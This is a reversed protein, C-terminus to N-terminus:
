RRGPRIWGSGPILRLLECSLAISQRISILLAGLVGGDFRFAEGVLGPAFDAGNSLSGEYGDILDHAHGDGSWWAILGDSLPLCDSESASEAPLAQQPPILRVDDIYTTAVAGPNRIDILMRRFDANRLEAVDTPIYEGITQGDLLCRYIMTAPDVELRLQYWRDYDGPVSRYYIGEVPMNRAKAQKIEFVFFAGGSDARQDCRAEWNAGSSLTTEWTMYSEVYLGNHDSSLMKRIEMGGLEGGKVRDPSRVMLDCGIPDDHISNAIQLVGDGQVYGGDSFAACNDMREWRTANYSGDDVPDDFSDYLYPAVESVAPTPAEALASETSVVTMTVPPTASASVPAGPEAVAAPERLQEFLWAGAFAGLFLLAAAFVLLGIMRPTTIRRPAAGEGAPEVVAPALDKGPGPTSQATQAQLVLTALTTDALPVSSERLADELARALEAASQYRHDPDKALAKIIVAEVPEPIGPAVQRPLTLPENIHALVVAMPTNAQFPVRGVVMEYLMIGLAYIDARHDVLEGLCQEPAMYDPTGLAVGTATLDSDGGLARAIGFDSLYAEGEDDIMVNSPKVDRHVVGQRHAYDLAACIQKMLSLIDGSALRGQALVDKLTGGDLYRMALYAIGQQEGYDYVPLINKHELKAILRAERIFRKAFQTDRGSYESLVKLAVYREMSPQYAKYVRAMGGQGIQEIVRYQGLTTGPQISNM